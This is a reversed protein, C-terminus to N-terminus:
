PRVHCGPVRVGTLWVSWSVLKANFEVLFGFTAATEGISEPISLTWYSIFDGVGGALLAAHVIRWRWLEIRSSGGATRYERHVLRIIPLMLLYVVFFAKGYVDYALGPEGFTIASADELLPGFFREVPTGFDSWVIDETFVAVAAMFPTLALGFVAGVVAAVRAVRISRRAM